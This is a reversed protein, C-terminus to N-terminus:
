GDFGFDAVVFGEGFECGSDVTFGLSFGVGEGLFVEGEVDVPGGVGGPCFFAVVLVGCADVGGDGANEGECGVGVHEPEFRLGRIEVLRAGEGRLDAFLVWILPKHIIQTRAKIPRTLPKRIRIQLLKTIFKGLRPKHQLQNTKSPQMRRGRHRTLQRLPELLIPHQSINFKNLPPLLFDPRINQRM